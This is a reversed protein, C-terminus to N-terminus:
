TWPVDDCRMCCNLCILYCSSWGKRQMVMVMMMMVIMGVTMVMVVTM